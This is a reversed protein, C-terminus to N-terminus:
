GRAKHLRPLVDLAFVGTPAGIRDARDLAPAGVVNAAVAAIPIEADILAQLNSGNGSVLVGVGGPARVM